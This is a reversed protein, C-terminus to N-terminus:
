KVKGYCEGASTGDCVGDRMVDCVGEHMVDCCLMVDSFLM